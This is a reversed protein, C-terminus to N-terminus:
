AGSLLEELMTTVRNKKAVRSFLVIEAKNENMLNTFEPVHVELSLCEGCTKIRLMAIPIAADPELLYGFADGTHSLVGKIGFIIEEATFSGILIGKDSLHLELDGEGWQDSTRFTGTFEKRFRPTVTDDLDIVDTSFM